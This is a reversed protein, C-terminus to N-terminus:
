RQQAYLGRLSKPSSQWMQLLIIIIIIFVNKGFPAPCVLYQLYEWILFLPTPPPLAAGSPPYIYIYIYIYVCVCVCKPSIQTASCFWCLVIDRYTLYVFSFTLFDDRSFCCTWFFDQNFIFFCFAEASFNPKFGQSYFHFLPTRSFVSFSYTGMSAPLFDPSPVTQSSLPFFLPRLYFVNRYLCFLHPSLLAWQAWGTVCAADPPPHFMVPVISHASCCHSPNAQASALTCLVEASLCLLFLSTRVPGVLTLSLRWLLPDDSCSLIKYQLSFSSFSAPLLVSPFFLARAFIPFSLICLAQLPAVRQSVMCLIWKM